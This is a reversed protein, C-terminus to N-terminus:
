LSSPCAPYLHCASSRVTAFGKKSGSRLNSAFGDATMDDDGASSSRVQPDPLSCLRLPSLEYLFSSHNTEGVQVVSRACSRVTYLSGLSQRRPQVWCRGLPLCLRSFSM